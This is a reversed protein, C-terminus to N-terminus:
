GVFCSNSISIISEIAGLLRDVVQLLATIQRAPLAWYM